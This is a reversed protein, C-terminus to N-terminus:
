GGLRCNGGAAGSGGGAPGANDVPQASSRCRVPTALWKIRIRQYNEDFTSESFEVEGLVQRHNPVEM